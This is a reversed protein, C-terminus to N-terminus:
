RDSRGNRRATAALVAGLALGLAVGKAARIAEGRKREADDDEPDAGDQM